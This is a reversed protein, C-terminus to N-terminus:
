ALTLAVRDGVVRMGAVVAAVVVVRVRVDAPTVGGFDAAVARAEGVRRLGDLFEACRDHAADVLVRLEDNTGLHPDIQTFDTIWYGHYGASEEGPKGQVPKNKFSPTLWISTTGLDQVYDLNALIGQLDGGQYFGTRTPDDQGVRPGQRVQGVVTDVTPEEGGAVRLVQRALEGEDESGGGCAALAGAAVGALAGMAAIALVPFYNRRRPAAVDHPIEFPKPQYRLTGLIEELQQIQPDPEGTKDWLYDEKM